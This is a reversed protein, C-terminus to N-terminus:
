LRVGCCFEAVVVDESGSYSDRECIGYEGFGKQFVVYTTQGNNSRQIAQSIAKDKSM